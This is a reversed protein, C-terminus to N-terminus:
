EGRLRAEAGTVLGTVIEDATMVENVLGVSQGAYLAMAHIRGRVGRHPPMGFHTPVAATGDPAPMTGVEDADVAGVAAIASRLVRARPLTACLPCVAFADTIETADAAADLVAAVYDPHAGSEQAAIFRTGIRAGAAGAALVAALARPDAIGGAALVPVPVAELVASLLPLLATRGRIHGGAETGQAAVIDVGADVAAVADAVSGIQWSVLAGASHAVDVLARDPTSWFFDVVRVRAAAVQVAKPDVDDTLFNVAFTGSAGDTMTDLYEALDDPALGPLVAVTGLGGARAVATALETSSIPGMPAQQIPVDCGVLETFRTTIM